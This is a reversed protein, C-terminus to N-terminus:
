NGCQAMEKGRGENGGRMVTREANGTCVARLIYSITIIRANIIIVKRLSKWIYNGINISYSIGISSM